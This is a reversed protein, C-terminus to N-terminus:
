SQEKISLVQNLSTNILENWNAADPDLIGQLIMGVALAVITKAAAQSDVKALSGEAIGEEIMRSFLETYRRYPAITAQWIQPNRSAQTWFELFMPFRGGAESLVQEVLISLRGFAEPISLSDKRVEAIQQDLQELWHNLLDLFLDQKSPFHHYFAGKSIGAGNCIDSVSTSNYRFQSFLELAKSRILNQTELSRNQPM